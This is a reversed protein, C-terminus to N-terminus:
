LLIGCNYALLMEKTLDYFVISLGKKKAKLTYRYLGSWCDWCCYTIMATDDKIEVTPLLEGNNQYDYFKDYDKLSNFSIRSSKNKDFIYVCAFRDEKKNWRKPMIDSAIDMLFAQWVGMETFSVLMYNWIPPIFADENYCSPLLLDDYYPDATPYKYNRSRRGRPPRKTSAIKESLPVYVRQADKNHVYLQLKFSYGGDREFADLVYRDDILLENLPNLLWNFNGPGRFAGEEFKANTLSIFEIGKKGLLESNKM